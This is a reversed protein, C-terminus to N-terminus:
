TANHKVRYARIAEKSLCVLCYLFVAAFLVAIGGSIYAWVMAREGSPSRSMAYGGLLNSFVSFVGGVAGSFSLILGIWLKRRTRVVAM